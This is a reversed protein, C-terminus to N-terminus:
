RPDARSSPRTSTSSLCRGRPSTPLSRDDRGLKASYQYRSPPTNRKAVVCSVRGRSPSTRETSSHPHSKPITAAELDLRQRSLIPSTHKRGWNPYACPPLHPFAFGPGDAPRQQGPDHDWTGTARSGQTAHRTALAVALPGRWLLRLPSFTPSTTTSAAGLKDGRSMASSSRRAPLRVLSLRPLDSTVQQRM